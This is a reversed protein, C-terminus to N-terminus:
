SAILSLDNHITADKFLCHFKGVYWLQRLFFIVRNMEVAATIALNSGVYIARCLIRFLKMYSNYAIHTHIRDDGFKQKPIEKWKLLSNKRGWKPTWGRGSRSVHRFPWNFLFHFVYEEIKRKIPARLAAL